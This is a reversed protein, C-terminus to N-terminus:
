NSISKQWIKRERFNLFELCKKSNREYDFCSTWQVDYREIVHDTKADSLDNM